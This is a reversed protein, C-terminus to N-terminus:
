IEELLEKELEDILFNKIQGEKMIPTWLISIWAKEYGAGDITVTLRDLSSVNLEPETVVVRDDLVTKKSTGTIEGMISIDVMLSEEPKKELVVASKKITGDCPFMYYLKSESGEEIVTTIPFPPVVATTKKRARLFLRKLTKEIKNLREEVTADKDFTIKGM